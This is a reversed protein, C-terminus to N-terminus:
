SNVTMKMMQNSDTFCFLQNQAIMETSHLFFIEIFQQNVFTFVM